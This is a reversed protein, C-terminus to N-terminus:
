QNIQTECYYSNYKEIADSCKTHCTKQLTDYGKCAEIADECTSLCKGELKKSCSDTTFPMFCHKSWEENEKKKEAKCQDFKEVAASCKTNCTM